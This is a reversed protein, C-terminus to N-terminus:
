PAKKATNVSTRTKILLITSAAIVGICVGGIIDLPSHVGLYIRTFPVAFVLLLFPLRLRVPVLPWFVISLVIIMATHGSPFGLNYTLPERSIIGPILGAPRPRHILLKLTETLFYAFFSAMVIQLALQYKHRFTLFAIILLGFWASGLQTIFIMPWFIITPMNYVLLTIQAEIGLLRMNQRALVGSIILIIASIFISGFLIYSSRKHRDM